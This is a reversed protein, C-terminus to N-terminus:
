SNILSEIKGDRPSSTSSGAPVPTEEKALPAEAVPELPAPQKSSTPLLPPQAPPRPGYQSGQTSSYPNYGNNLAPNPNIGYGYNTPASYPQYNSFPANQYPQYGHMLYPQSAAVANSPMASSSPQKLHQQFGTSAPSNPSSKVSSGTKNSKSGESKATDSRSGNRNDDNDNDNDDDDDDDSNLPHHAEINRPTYDDGLCDWGEAAVVYPLSSGFPSSAEAVGFMDKFKKQCASATIRKGREKTLESAIYKWKAREGQDMLDTLTEVDEYNWGAIETDDTNNSNSIERASGDPNTPVLSNPASAASSVPAPPFMYGPNSPTSFPPPQQQVPPVPPVPPPNSFNPPPNQLNSPNPLYSSYQQNITFQSTMSFTYQPTHSPNQINQSPNPVPHLAPNHAPTQVPNQIPTHAPNQINLSRQFHHHPNSLHQQQQFHANSNVNHIPPAPPNAFLPQSSSVNTCGPAPPQNPFYSNSNNPQM